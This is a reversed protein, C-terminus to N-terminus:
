AVRPKRKIKGKPKEENEPIKEDLHVNRAAFDKFNASWPMLAVVTEPDYALEAERFIFEFYRYPDAGNAKATELLSFMIMNAEAGDKCYSFMSNKRLIAVPKVRRECEGNDIPINGNELFVKLHEEYRLAYEVADKLYGKIEKVDLSHVFEFFADVRPKVVELRADFREEASLAKLSTDAEFIANSLMLGKAASDEKIQEETMDKLKKEMALLANAFRRRLHMWCFAAKIRGNAEEEITLYVGYADSVIYRALNLLYRRLHNAGRSATFEYFVIKHGKILESTNHVWVWGLSGNKKEPEGNNDKPWVVVRWTTEDIQEVPCKLLEKKLQRWIRFGIENAFNRLWNDMTQRLMPVGRSNYDREIRYLPLGMDYFKTAMSGMLSESFFSNDLFKPNFPLAEINREGTVPDDFEVIPAYNHMVYVVPRTECLQMKHHWDVIHWNGEGYRENLVENSYGYHNRHELGAYRDVIDGKRRTVRKPWFKKPKPKLLDMARKASRSKPLKEDDDVDAEAVETDEVVEADESLPDVLADKDGDFIRSTQETSAGFVDRKRLDLQEGKLDLQEQMQTTLADLSQKEKELEDYKSQTRAADTVLRVNEEKLGDCQRQLELNKLKLEENMTQLRSNEEFIKGNQERMKDVDDKLKLIESNKDIIIATLREKEVKVAEEIKTPWYERLEEALRTYDNKKVEAENLKIEVERHLKDYIEMLLDLARDPERM